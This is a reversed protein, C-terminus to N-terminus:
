LKLLFLTIDKDKGTVSGFYSKASRSIAENYTLTPFTKEFLVKREKRYSHGRYQAPHDTFLLDLLKAHQDIDLYIKM